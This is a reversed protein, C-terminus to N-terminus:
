PGDGPVRGAKPTSDAQHDDAPERIAAPLVASGPPPSSAAGPAAHPRPALEFTVTPRHAADGSANFESTALNVHIVIADSLVAPRSFQPDAVEVRPTGTIDVLRQHNNFNARQGTVTVVRTGAPIGQGAPTPAREVLSVDGTAVARNLDSATGSVTAEVRRARMEYHQVVGATTPIDATVRVNGTGIVRLSGGPGPALALNEASLQFPGFQELNSQQAGAPACVALAAALAALYGAAAPALFSPRSPRRRDLRASIM